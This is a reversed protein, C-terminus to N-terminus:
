VDIGRESLASWIESMTELPEGSEPPNALAFMAERLRESRRQQSPGAFSARAGELLLTRGLPSYDYAAGAFLPLTSTFHREPPEVDSATRISFNRLNLKKEAIASLVAMAEGGDKLAGFIEKLLEADKILQPSANQADPALLPSVIADLAADLEVQQAATAAAKFQVIAHLADIMAKVPQWEYPQSPFLLATISRALNNVTIDDSIIGHAAADRQNVRTQEQNIRKGRYMFDPASRQSRLLYDAQPYEVEKLQARTGLMAPAFPTSFRERSVGNCQFAILENAASWSTLDPQPLTYSPSPSSFILPIGTTM